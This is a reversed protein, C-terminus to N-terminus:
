KLILSIFGLVLTWLANESRQFIKM